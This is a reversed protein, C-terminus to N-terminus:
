NLPAVTVRVATWIGRQGRQAPLLRKLYVRYEHSADKGVVVSESTTECEVVLKSVLTAAPEVASDTELTETVAVAAVWTPDGRWPQHGNEFANQLEQVANLEIPLEVTRSGPRGPPSASDGSQPCPRSSAVLPDLLSASFLFLGVTVFLGLVASSQSRVSM